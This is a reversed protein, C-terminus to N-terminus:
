GLEYLYFFQSVFPRERKVTKKPCGGQNFNRVLTREVTDKNKLDLNEENGYNFVLFFIM